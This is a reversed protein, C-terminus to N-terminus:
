NPSLMSKFRPALDSQFPGVEQRLRNSRFPVFMFEVFEHTSDEVVQVALRVKPILKNAFQPKAKFLPYSLVDKGRRRDAGSAVGDGPQMGRATWNLRKGSWTM